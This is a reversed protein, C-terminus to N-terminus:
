GDKLDRAEENELRAKEKEAMKRDMGKRHTRKRGDSCNDTQESGDILLLKRYKKSIGGQAWARPTRARGEHGRLARVLSSQAKAAGRGGGIAEGHSSWRYDAPDQCIGARVPNLDIYAAM